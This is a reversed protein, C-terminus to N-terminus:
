AAACSSPLRRCLPAASMLGAPVASGQVRTACHHVARESVWCDLRRTVQGPQAAQMAARLQSSQQKWKAAKSGQIPRDTAAAAPQQQATTGRRCLMLM